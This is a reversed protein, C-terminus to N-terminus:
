LGQYIMRILRFLNLLILRHIIETPTWLSIPNEIYDCYVVLDMVIIKYEINWCTYVGSYLRFMLLYVIEFLM